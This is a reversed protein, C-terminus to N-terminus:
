RVYIHEGKYGLGLKDRAYEEVYFDDKQLAKVKDEVHRVLELQQHLQELLNINKSQALWVQQLGQTSFILIWGLLFLESILLLWLFYSILRM